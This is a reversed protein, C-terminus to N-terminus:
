TKLYWKITKKIGEELKVRPFWQLENKAKSCNLCIFTRLSKKTVDNIPTIKRGSIKIITKFLKNISILKGSGVNYLEYKKKQKKIAM